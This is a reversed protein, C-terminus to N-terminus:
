DTRKIDTARQNGYTVRSVNLGNTQYIPQANIALDLRANEDFFCTNRKPAVELVQALACLGHRTGHYLPAQVAAVYMHIAVVKQAVDCTFVEKGCIHKTCCTSEMRVQLIMIILGGCYIGSSM